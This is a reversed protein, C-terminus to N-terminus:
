LVALLEELRRALGSGLKTELSRHRAHHGDDPDDSLRKRAGVDLAHVADHVAGGVEDERRHLARAGRVGIRERLSLMETVRLRVGGLVDGSLVGRRLHGDERPQGEPSGHM